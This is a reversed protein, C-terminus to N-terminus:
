KRERERGECSGASRLLQRQRTKRECRMGTATGERQRERRFQWVFDGELRKRAGCSICTQRAFIEFRELRAGGGEAATAESKRDAEQEGAETTRGETRTRPEGKLNGGSSNGGAGAHDTTADLPLFALSPRGSVNKQRFLIDIVPLIAPQSLQM